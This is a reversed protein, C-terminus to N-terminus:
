IRRDQLRAWAGNARNEPKLRKLDNLCLSKLVVAVRRPRGIVQELGLWALRTHQKPERRQNIQFFVATIM